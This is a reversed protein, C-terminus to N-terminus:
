LGVRIPKKLARNCTIPELDSAVERGDAPQTDAVVAPDKDAASCSKFIKTPTIEVLGGKYIGPENIFHFELKATKREGPAIDMTEKVEGKIRYDGNLLLAVTGQEYLRMTQPTTNKLVVTVDIGEPHDKVTKITVGLGSNNEPGPQFMACGALLASIFIISFRM